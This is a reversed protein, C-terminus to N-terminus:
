QAQEWLLFWVLMIVTGIGVCLAMWQGFDRESLGGSDMDHRSLTLEVSAICTAWLGCSFAVWVVCNVRDSRFWIKEQLPRYEFKSQRVTRFLKLLALLFLVAAIATLTGLLALWTIWGTTAKASDGGLGSFIKCAGLYRKQAVGWTATICSALFISALAVMTGQSHVSEAPHIWRCVILLLVPLSVVTVLSIFIPAELQLLTDDSGVGIGFAVLLAFTMLGGSARGLDANQLLFPNAIIICASQLYFGLRVGVGYMDTSLDYECFGFVTSNTGPLPDAPIGLSASTPTSVAAVTSASTTGTTSVFPHASLSSSSQMNSLSVSNLATTDATQSTTSFLSVGNITPPISSISTITTFSQTITSTSFANSVITTTTEEITVLSASFAGPNTASVLNLLASQSTTAIPTTLPALATAQTATPIPAVNSQSQSAAPISSTTTPVFVMGVDTPTSSATGTTSDDTLYPNYTLTMTPIFTAIAAGWCETDLQGNSNTRTTCIPPGVVEEVIVGSAVTTTYFSTYASTFRHFVFLSVLFAPDM